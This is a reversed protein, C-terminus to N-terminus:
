SRQEFTSLVFATKLALLFKSQCFIDEVNRWDGSTPQIDLQSDLV